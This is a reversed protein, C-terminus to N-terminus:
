EPVDVIHEIDGNKIVRINYYYGPNMMYYIKYEVIEGNPLSYNMIEEDVVPTVNVANPVDFLVDCNKPCGIYYIEDKNLHIEEVCTTESDLWKYFVGYDDSESDNAFVNVNSNLSPVVSQKLKACIIRYKVDITKESILTGAPISLDKEINDFNTRPVIGNESYNITGRFTYSGEKLLEDVNSSVNTFDEEDLKKLSYVPIDPTCEADVMIGEDDTEVGEYTEIKGDTYTYGLTTTLTTGVEYTEKDKIGNLEFTPLVFKTPHAENVLINKIFEKLTTGKTIVDGNKYNGVNRGVVTVFPETNSEDHGEMLVNDTDLDKHAISIKGKTNEVKSIYIHDDNFDEKDLDELMWHVHSNLHALNKRNKLQEIKFIRYVESLKAAGDHNVHLIEDAEMQEDEPFVGYWINTSINKVQNEDTILYLGSGYVTREIIEEGNKYIINEIIEENKVFVFGGIRDITALKLAETYTDVEGCIEGGSTKRIFGMSAIPNWYEVVKDNEIVGVTLGPEIEDLFVNLEDLMQDISEWPGYLYDLPKMEQNYMSGSYSTNLARSSM